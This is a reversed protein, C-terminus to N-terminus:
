ISGKGRIKAAMEAIMEAWTPPVYGTCKWFRTSDLSRDCQVSDDPVVQVGRQLENELSRLLEYKSIPESAVHWLGSLQPYRLLIMEILRSLEYTTFGSFIAKTYGQVSGKSALFWEILSSKRAFERGIISTRLTLCHPRDVEGLLKTRGYLDEPDPKDLESYSGKRGSFVCDTSLTIFRAGVLSCLGALRHPLVANVQMATLVDQAEARQKVIGAVNVVVEPRFAALVDVIADPTMLDISAYSNNPTYLGYQTYTVLPRRLTVRVDHRGSLHRLLQHGLMGDGGLILIRM